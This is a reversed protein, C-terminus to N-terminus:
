TNQIVGADIRMSGVTIKFSGQGQILPFLRVACNERAQIGAM